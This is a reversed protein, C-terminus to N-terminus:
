RSFQITYNNCSLGGTIRYVQVYVTTPWTINRSTWQNPGPISQDDTFSYATLGTAGGGGGCSLAGGGCVGVVDFRFVGGDNVTLQITPTGGGQGPNPAFTAAFWDVDGAPVIKGSRSVSGGIGIGGVGAAAGCASGYSDDLCECGNASVSDVDYWSPDCAAVLCGGGSCVESANPLNCAFGCSGCNLLNNTLNVECGDPAGGNCDGFGANCSYGCTSSSCFASANPRAPCVNGCSGCNTPSTALFAECGDAALGNCDSFGPLCTYGCASGACYPTSNPRAPCANGCASCHAVTNTTNTECGDTPNGNCDGFGASCSFGCTSGSCFRSSSPRNPCSNGCAGCNDVDTGTATECGDTPNGNCDSWGPNCTIGCTSGSCSPSANPRAPCAFGCSGCHAPDSTTDIECGDSANGNCDDFGANCTFGCTSCSCTSTANARAPCANGCAGCHAVTSTTDVECGDTPNGNCDGSGGNCTFGCTGATCTRSSSPRNPCVNGCSGCNALDTSTTIECGDGALANCDGFGPNCSYGCAGGTCTPMSSPPIPCANGCSGCHLVDTSTGVECGDGALGNCDAFTPDCDYGCTGGVCTRSSSARNPCVNGCSGCNALDDDTHIECGDGELTNCDAYGAFCMYGCVGACTTNANPRMPCLGGCSNCGGGGDCVNGGGCPTGLPAFTNAPCATGSGTCAEGLDCGDVPPRCVVGGPVVGDPPCTPTSGTCLEESDCVDVPARCSTGAAVLVDVPCAAALGNCSEPVDCVGAAPRCVFGAPQRADPPCTVSVGDCVEQTDCPGAPARCPTGPLAMDDPPCDPSSGTCQEPADCLGVPARCETGAAVIGVAVCVPAGGSCDIEGIECGRGTSCPSGPTCPACTRAGDCVGGPCVTGPPSPADPPCAASSGDCIDPADCADVAARCVTTSDYADPPCTTSSGTCSEAIDCPGAVPRCETGAASPGTSVCVPAGGSCDFAGVECPNGTSCPAGPACAVCAGIGDSVGGTCMTGAPAAGDPPCDLVTGDCTEEADCVDTAARCVTGAAAPGTPVCVPAGSSCDITGAECGRATVCPDGPVCFPTCGGAGDCTGGGLCASGEPAFGDPPCPAGSGDCTEAVDCSDARPRCVSGAPAPGTTMCAPTGTACSITGSQCSTSTCADGAVCVNCNGSGDCALGVGCHVGAPLNTRTVCQAVGSSCDVVGTTCPNGTSCVAGDICTTCEGASTCVGAGAGCTTGSPAVGSEVCVPMGSGCDSTGTTCPNGTSCRMGEVCVDCSGDGSCALGEGCGVGRPVDGDDECVTTTEDVCRTRGRTCPNGTSCVVDAICESCTGGGCVGTTGCPMGDMPTDPVCEPVGSGCDIHGTTCPNGTSCVIGPTCVSCSGDAACTYGGGCPAGEPLRGTVECVGSNGDCRMAGTACLDDPPSCSQGMVCADLSADAAGRCFISDTVGPPCTETQCASAVFAAFALLSWRSARGM